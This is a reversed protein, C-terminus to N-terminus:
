RVVHGALGWSRRLWGHESRQRNHEGITRRWGCSHRWHEDVGVDARRDGPQFGREAKLFSDADALRMALRLLGVHADAELEVPRSTGVDLASDPEEVVHELGQRPVGQVIEVEGRDPVQVHIGM